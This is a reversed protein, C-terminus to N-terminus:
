RPWRASGRGASRSVPRDGAPGGGRRPARGPGKGGAAVLDRYFAAMREAMREVTFHRDIRASGEHGMAARRPADGLLEVCARALAEPDRPPVLLGTRGDEVVEPNGGARTAVVARAAAMAELVANSMGESDSPQVFLDARRLLGPVDRRVGLLHLAGRVGLREALAATPERLPGDGAVAVRAAPFRSLIHPLARVLTDHGKLPNIGGATLLLPGPGAPLDAAPEADRVRRPDIGNPVTVVREPAVKEHQVCSRRVAESPTVIRDVWRNALRYATRRRPAEDAPMMRRSNIVRAAGGLRAALTGFVDPVFLSAHVLDHRRRRVMATVRALRPLFSPRYVIPLDLDHVPVGIEEFRELLPGSRRTCCVEVDFEARDLRRVLEFLHVPTGALELTGTLFLIRV